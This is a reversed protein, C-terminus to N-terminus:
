RVTGSPTRRAERVSRAYDFPGRAVGLLQWPLLAHPRRAGRAPGDAPSAAVLHVLGRPALRAFTVLRSPRRAVARTLYAALGIGYNLAQSRADGPERRHHHHVIASPEYVVTYGAEIVDLFAALDDGGRGASGAGLAPDFGGLSRLVDTRFAMNAGSGLAGATYPFLPDDPRSGNLNFARTTFGKGFGGHAEIMAQGPTELEAPWILGTVCGVRESSFHQALSGIWDRDVVVDDDTFAVVPTSVHELGRNHARALGAVDERVYTVEPYDRRVMDGTASSSPANDVVIVQLDPYRTALLSELCQQLQRPRDHTAVVVTVGPGGAARRAAGTPSSTAETSAHEARIRADDEPSIRGDHLAVDAAGVPRGARRVLVRARRYGPAPPPTSPDTLEVEMLRVPTFGDDRSRNGGTAPVRHRLRAAHGIAYGAATSALGFGIAGARAAGFADGRRLTAVLGAAVGAPLTRAVYSRETSLADRPGVLGAVTAKSRGEAFTRRAFYGFRARDRTVRHHVVARPEFVIRAGPRRQRIRICLETEECGTAAAGIRGVLPSFCEGEALVEARFAMTAGHVNRVEGGAPPMGLYTCGVVWDFEAPWWRPRVGDWRPTAAGGVAVVRPDAFPATLHELWDPAPTADDDLFAILAGTAAMIGTNRAGSLGRSAQNGVVEVHPEWTSRARRLLSEDHDIVLVVQDPPRSQAGLADIAATLDHWRRETYACVVVTVPLSGPLVSATM